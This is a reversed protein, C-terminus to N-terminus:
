RFRYGLHQGSVARRLSNEPYLFGRCVTYMSVGCGRQDFLVETSALDLFFYFRRIRAITKSAKTRKHAILTRASVRTNVLTGHHNHARENVSANRGKALNRVQQQWLALARGFNKKHTKEV